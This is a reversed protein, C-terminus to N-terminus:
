LLPKELERIRVKLTQIVEARPRHALNTGAMEEEIIIQLFNVDNSQEIYTILEAQKKTKLIDKAINEATPLEASEIEEISEKPKANKTKNSETDYSLVKYAIGKIVAKYLKPMKDKNVTGSVVPPTSLANLGEYGDVEPNWQAQRKGLKFNITKTM